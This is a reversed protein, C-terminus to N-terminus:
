PNNASARPGSETQYDFFGQALVLAAALLGPLSLPSKELVCKLVLATCGSLAVVIEAVAFALPYANRLRFFAYGVLVVAVTGLLTLLLSSHGLLIRTGCAKVAPSQDATFLALSSLLLVFQLGQLIRLVWLPLRPRLWSLAASLGIWTFVITGMIYKFTTLAHPDTVAIGIEACLGLTATILFVRDAKPMKIQTTPMITSQVIPRYFGIPRRWPSETTRALNEAM